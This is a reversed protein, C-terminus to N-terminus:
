SQKSLKMTSAFVREGIKLEKIKNERNHMITIETDIGQHKIQM